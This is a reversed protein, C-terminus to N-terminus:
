PRICQRLGDAMRRKESADRRRVMCVPLAHKGPVHFQIMAGLATQLFMKALMARSHIIVQSNGTSRVGALIASWCEHFRRNAVM